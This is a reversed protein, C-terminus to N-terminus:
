MMSSPSPATLGSQSHRHDHERFVRSAVASVLYCSAGALMAWRFGLLVAVAMTGVSGAVSFVGNLGWYFPPDPFPGRGTAALGRPFPVGMLFGLPAVLAVAVAIRAALSLPLLVPVLAPAVLALLTALVAVGLCATGPAVRRSLGSGIGGSLLLTFLLISLTFTPHGLLLTLNQLLALEVSIFGLGLGAFYAVSVAYPRTAEGRPRGFAVLAFFLAGMPLVIWALTWLMGPPVGWPKARAFFFPRDDTVPDVRTEAREVYADFALRKSFLSAYPEDVQHGPVIIPRAQEWRAMRRTEEATFRRRKLMFIMQPPSDVDGARAEVLVAVRRGTEESGLLAIANSVLRPVDVDWRLIVLAGDPTLHEYYDRFAEVTYLHNESLTLGGSAVAAWSDVFGLLIVDFRRDARRIFSRGESLVPEVRPHEYLHGARAGFRRVFDLMLPNMEVATVMRSGAALAVLVDSGGGPGIVLTRPRESAVEFPLARYWRALPELSEARGDWELVNTWADADIYLRALFPPEFGTVVDIRSYANWGTLVRRTAPRQQMHRYMAKAPASRVSFIGSRQNALVGAVLGAAVLAAALRLRPSLCAAAAAPAVALALVANEGGLWSLLATVGLAGLAAGVLDARYLHGASERRLAFLMALAAGALLFPVLSVVFYLALRSPDVPLRVILWLATPISLANLLALTGARERSFRIGRRLYHLAFGGLGWGLLAVSIAVFAYHYWITASFIRTLAIELMLGSLAILFIALSFAM